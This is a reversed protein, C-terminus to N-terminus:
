LVYNVTVSTITFSPTAGGIVYNLRWTRPLPMNLATTQLTGTVLVQPTVGAAQSTNTPYVIFMQAVNGSTIAISAPGVAIWTTGGDTSFQLQMSLTPTGGTVAGVFVTIYAGRANENTQTAGFFSAVQAGSDGTTTNVVGAQSVLLNGSADERLNQLNGSPDEAGVLVPEITTPPTYAPPSAISSGAPYLGQVQPDAWAASTNGPQSILLQGAHTPTNVAVEIGGIENANVVGTGSYQLVATGSVTMQASTNNGTTIVAFSPVSGSTAYYASVNGAGDSQWIVNTFGGPAAPTVGNFNPDTVLVGNVSVTSGGSGGPIVSPDFQGNSGLLALNGAQASTGGVLVIEDRWETWAVQGTKDRRNLILSVELASLIPNEESM